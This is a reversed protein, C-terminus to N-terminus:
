DRPTLETRSARVMTIAHFPCTLACDSCGTCPAADQLVSRKRWGFAELALVHPECSAVCWGCGTCRGPDIAPRWGPRSRATPSTPIAPKANRM